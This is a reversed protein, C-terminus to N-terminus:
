KIFIKWISSIFNNQCKNVNANKQKLCNDYTTFATNYTKLQSNTTTPDIKIKKLMNIKVTNNLVNDGIIAYINLLTAYDKDQATFLKILANVRADDCDKGGNTQTNPRPANGNCYIQKNIIDTYIKDTIKLQEIMEIRTKNDPISPNNLITQLGVKNTFVIGEKTTFLYFLVVVLLIIVYIYFHSKM